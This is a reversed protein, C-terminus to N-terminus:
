QKITALIDEVAVLKHEVGELEITEGGWNRLVVIDGPQVEMVSRSGDNFLKGPGVAVVEARYKKKGEPIYLGSATTEDDGQPKVLVNNSLPIVQM